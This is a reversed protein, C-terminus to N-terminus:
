WLDELYEYLIANQIMVKNYEQLITQLGSLSTAKEM